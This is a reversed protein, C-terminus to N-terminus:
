CLSLRYCGGGLFFGLLFRCFVLLERVPARNMYGGVPQVQLLQMRCGWGRALVPCAFGASAPADDRSRPDSGPDFSSHVKARAWALTPLVHESVDAHCVFCVLCFCGFSGM